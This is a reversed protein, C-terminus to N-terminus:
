ENSSIMTQILYSRENYDMGNQNVQYATMTLKLRSVNLELLNYLDWVRDTYLDISSFNTRRNWLIFVFWFSLYSYM